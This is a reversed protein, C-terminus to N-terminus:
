VLHGISDKLWVLLDNSFIGLCVTLATCFFLAAAAGGRVKDPMWRGKREEEFYLVMLVRLYYYLSIFSNLAAAAVLIVYGDQLAAYFLYFKSFFGALPPIGALSLLAFMMALGALPRKWGLGALSQLDDDKYQDPGGATLVLVVGFAALTAVTYVLLYFVVLSISNSRGITLVGILVYGAHAISSYALLRKISRQRLAALNGATMSCFSLLWVADRWLDVFGPFAYITLRLFAAFAAAKVVTSMFMSITTPAGQYADPVWFHFPVLSMKFATGFFVFGLGTILLVNAPRLNRAIAEFYFSGGAGYILAIGYLLFASSFAGLIFYKVAGEASAKERGAAGALSYVSLSLLEFGIFFVLLHGAELMVLAGVLAIVILVRCDMPFRVRENELYQDGIILTLLTALLLIEGLFWAIPDAFLMGNFGSYHPLFWQFISAAWALAIGACLWLLASAKGTFLGYLLMGVAFLVLILQPLVLVIESIGFRM